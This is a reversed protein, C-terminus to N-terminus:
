SRRRATSRSPKRRSRKAMSRGCRCISPGCLPSEGELSWHNQTSSIPYGGPEKVLKVDRASWGGGITRLPNVDVGVGDAVGGRDKPRLRAYAGRRQRGHRPSDLGAGHCEGGITVSALRVEPYQETGKDPMLGMAEATQPSVLAPNDWVTRTGFVPLEQLWPINAFRGDASM